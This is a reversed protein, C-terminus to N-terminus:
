AYCLLSSVNDIVGLVPFACLLTNLFRQGDKILKFDQDRGPLNVGGRPLHESVCLFVLIRLIM